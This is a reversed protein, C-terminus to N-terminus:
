NEDLLFTALRRPGGRVKRLFSFSLWRASRSCTTKVPSAQIPPSKKRIPAFKHFSRTSSLSPQIDFRVCRPPTDLKPLSKLNIVNVESFRQDSGPNPHEQTRYSQSHHRQFSVAGMEKLILGIVLFIIILIAIVFGLISIWKPSHAQDFIGDTHEELTYPKTVNKLIQNPWHLTGNQVSNPLLGSNEHIMEMGQDCKQIGHQIESKTEDRTEQDEAPEPTTGNKASNELHVLKVLRVILLPNM